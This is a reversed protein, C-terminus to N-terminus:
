TTSPVIACSCQNRRRRMRHSIRSSMWWSTRGSIWPNKPVRPQATIKERRSFVENQDWDKDTNGDVHSGDLRVIGGLNMIAGGLM